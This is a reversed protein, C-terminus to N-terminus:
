TYLHSFDDVNSMMRTTHFIRINCGYYEGYEGGTINCIEGDICFGNGFLRALKEALRGDLYGMLRNLTVSYVYANYPYKETPTHVIQLEDGERSQCIAGQYEPASVGHIKCYLPFRLKLRKRQIFFHIKQWVGFKKM